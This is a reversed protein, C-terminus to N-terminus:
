VNECEIEMFVYTETQQCLLKNNSSELMKWLIMGRITSEFLSMCIESSKQCNCRLVMALGIKWSLPVGFYIFNSLPKTKCGQIGGDYAIFYLLWGDSIM